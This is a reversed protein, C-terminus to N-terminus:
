GVPGSWRVTPLVSRHNNLTVPGVQRVTVVPNGPVTGMKAQATGNGAIYSFVTRTGAPLDATATFAGGNHHLRILWFRGAVPGFAVWFTRGSQAGADVQMRFTVPVTSVAQHNSYAHTAGAPLAMLMAGAMALVSRRKM